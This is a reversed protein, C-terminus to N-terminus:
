IELKVIMKELEGDLTHLQKKCFEILESARKIRSSIADMNVEDTNELQKLIQELEAIAGSYTLKNEKM